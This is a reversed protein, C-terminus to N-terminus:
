RSGDLPKQSVFFPHARACTCLLQAGDKLETFLSASPDSVVYWIEACNTWCNGLYPFAPADARACKRVHLHVGGMVEAIDM